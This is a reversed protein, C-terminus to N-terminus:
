VEISKVCNGGSLIAASLCRQAPTLLERPPFNKSPFALTAIGISVTLAAAEQRQEWWQALAQALLRGSQAAERRDCDWLLAYRAEGIALCKGGQPSLQTAAAQLLREAAAAREPGLAFVWDSYRDIEILVLSVPRHQQRGSAIAAAIRGVLGPDDNASGAFSSMVSQQRTRGADDYRVREGLSAGAPNGSARVVTEDGRQRAPSVPPTECPVARVATQLEEILRSVDGYLDFALDSLQANAQALLEALTAGGQPYLAFADGLEAVKQDLCAVLDQLQDYNLRGSREGLELVERLAYPQHQTFLRALLEALRLIEVLASNPDAATLPESAPRLPRGIAEILSTPLGWKQLLRASIVAHDFGLSQTELALLDGGQETVHNVFRRYPEGLQQLLVLEGIDQLLGAIFAEDGSHRWIQEALERAAVAKILTHRWYRSLTEVEQGAFLEEPLSFSLVLMKLAKTGLLGLAQNLDTVAQRLGFLSSNVTKLLRATLAPDREICRKIARSDIRPQRCLELVQAAVAPLTYLRDARAVLETLISPSDNM